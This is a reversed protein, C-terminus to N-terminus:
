ACVVPSPPVESSWGSGSGTAAFAGSGDHEQAFLGDEAAGGETASEVTGAASVSVAAAAARSSRLPPLAGHQHSGASASPASDMAMAGRPGMRKVPPEIHPPNRSTASSPSPSFPQGAIAAAAAAAAADGTLFSDDAEGHTSAPPSWMHQTDCAGCSDSLGESRGQCCAAAPTVSVEQPTAALAANPTSTHVRWADPTTQLRNGTGGIGTAAVRRDGFTRWSCSSAAGGAEFSEAQSAEFKSPLAGTSLHRQQQQSHTDLAGGDAVHSLGIANGGGFWASPGFLAPPLAAMVTASASMAAVATRLLPPAVFAAVFGVLVLLLAPLLAVGSSSSSSASRRAVLRDTSDDADKALAASALLASLEGKSAVSTSTSSATTSAPAGAVAAFGHSSGMSLVAGLGHVYACQAWARARAGCGRRSGAKRANSDGGCQEAGERAADAAGDLLQQVTFGSSSSASSSASKSTAFTRAGDSTRAGAAAAAGSAAAASSASDAAAEAKIQDGTKGFRRERSAYATLAELLHKDSFDPWLAPTVHLETYALQWLLFNSIRLEGSTRILLDPDPVCPHPMYARVTDVGVSRPDLKGAAADACAAAVAGAIEERGGYSLCLVLTLGTNGASARVLRQLGDRAVAPLRSEDGNVLLRVGNAVLEECDTHVFDILLAMLARVEDRPRGWNQASFAYLTLFPVGLRRCARIVRHIAEVGAAHGESRPLGRTKAWRGNGDMVIAIHRPLQDPRLLLASPTPAVPAAAATPVSAKSSSEVASAVPPAAAAAGSGTVGARAIVSKARLAPPELLAWLEDDFCEVPGSSSCSRPMAALRAAVAAVAAATPNLNDWCLAKNVPELMLLANCCRDDDRGVADPEPESRAASGLEAEMRLEPEPRNGRILTCRPQGLGQLQLSHTPSVVDRLGGGCAPERVSVHASVTAYAIAAPEASERGCPMMAAGACHAAAARALPLPPPLPFALALMHGDAVVNCLFAARVRLVFRKGLFAAYAAPSMEVRAKVCAALAAGAVPVPLPARSESLSWSCRPDSSDVSAAATEGADGVAATPQWRWAAAVPPGAADATATAAVDLRELRALRLVPELRSGAGTITTTGDAPFEAGCRSRVARAAPPVYCRLLSPLDLALSGDMDSADCSSKAPQAELILSVNMTVRAFATGAADAFVVGECTPPAEAAAVDHCRAVPLLPNSGALMLPALQYLRSREASSMASEHKDTRDLQTEPNSRCCLAPERESCALEVAHECRRPAFSGSLICNGASASEDQEMTFIASLNFPWRQRFNESSTRVAVLIAGGIAFGVPTTSQCTM